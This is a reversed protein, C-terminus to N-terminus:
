KLITVSGTASFSAGEEDQQQFRWVYPGQMPAHGQVTGDWVDARQTGRFAVQGNRDYVTFTYNNLYRGKVELVDNLGDGNPTFATPITLVLRRTVTAVNSYSFTGSPLGAGAIQLRYRLVQQDTPPLLDDYRSGSVPINSRVTGDAALRQLVYTAPRTPNPGTFPTWSLAVTTGEADLPAASLLAPCTAASAPSTNGCVDTISVSYCPQLTRLDALATSDRFSRATTANGLSLPAAGGTARSYRLTSGTVLPASLIPTLEVVNRLNFSALLQPQRPPLASQTTVSVENSVAVGGGPQTATVRYTYTNGCQVDADEVTGNSVALPTTAAPTRTITYTTGAAADTALVLTNRNQASSGTISVTCITASAATSNGCADSRFIRYCGAPLPSQTLTTSGPVISAVTSFGSGSAAQLNYSYGAPLQGVELTAGTGQLALRTFLPTQPPALAPIPQTNPQSSCTNLATYRGTISISTAGAPVALQTPQNRPVVQTSAGIQATYTDYANDTITVLVFGNPCSAVTFAPPAIGYVRFTRIYYFPNAGDNSLESVTVDGIDAATPTYTYPQSNPPACQGLSNVYPLNAGQRVGYRTLTPDIVRGPCPTFHVPQGVCFATVPNNAADLAL